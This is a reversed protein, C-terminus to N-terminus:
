VTRHNVKHIIFLHKNSCHPLESYYRKLCSRSIMAINHTMLVKNLIGGERIIKITILM